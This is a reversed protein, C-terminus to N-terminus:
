FHWGDATMASGVLATLQTASVYATNLNARNWTVWSSTNFNSGTVTLTFGPSNAATSSPSISAIQPPLADFYFGAEGSHGGDPNFVQMRGATPQLNAFLSAPIVATLESRIRSPSCITVDAFKRM